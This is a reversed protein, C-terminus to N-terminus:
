REESKPPEPEPARETTPVEEPAAPEPAAKPVDHAEAPVAPAKEAKESAAPPLSVRKFDKPEAVAVEERQTYSGIDDPM